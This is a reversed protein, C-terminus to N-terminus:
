QKIEKNRNNSWLHKMIQSCYGMGFLLHSNQVLSQIYYFLHLLIRPLFTSVNGFIKHPGWACQIWYKCSLVFDSFLNLFTSITTLPFSLLLLMRQTPFLAGRMTGAHMPMLYVPQHFHGGHFSSAASCSFIFFKVADLPQIVLNSSQCPRTYLINAPSLAATSLLTCLHPQFFQWSQQLPVLWMVNIIHIPHPEEEVNKGVSGQSAFSLRVM